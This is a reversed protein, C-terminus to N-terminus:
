KGKQSPIFAAACEDESRFMPTSFNRWGGDGCDALSGVHYSMPVTTM